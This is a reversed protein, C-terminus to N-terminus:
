TKSTTSCRSTSSSSVSVVSAMSAMSCCYRRGLWTIRVSFPGEASPDNKEEGVGGWGGSAEGAPGVLSLAQM